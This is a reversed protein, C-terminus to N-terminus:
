GRRFWAAIDGIGKGMNASLTNEQNKNLVQTSQIPHLPANPAIAHIGKVMLNGLAQGPKAADELFGGVGRKLDGLLGPQIPNANFGIKQNFQDETMKDSYHKQYLRSALEGDSFHNYQPYRQRIEDLTM